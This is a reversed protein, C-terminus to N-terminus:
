NNLKKLIKKKIKELTERDGLRYGLYTIFIVFLTRLIGYELLLIGIVFGFLGYLYKKFNLIITEIIKELDM